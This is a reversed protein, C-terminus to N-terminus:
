NERPLGLRSVRDFRTWEERKVKPQDNSQDTEISQSALVLHSQPRLAHRHHHHHHHHQQQQHLEDVFSPPTYEEMPYASNFFSSPGHSWPDMHQYCAQGGHGRGHFDFTPAAAGQSHLLDNNNGLPTSVMVPSPMVTDPESGCPTLFRSQLTTPVPGPTLAPTLRSNYYQGSEQKIRLPAPAPAARSPQQTPEPSSARPTGAASESKVTISDGKKSKPEKRSKTVKSKPSATRNRKTPQQNLMYSRFRSYRMRAAHGNTIEQALIPDHAVKNWDIDKLNKQQLIAFLFRTMPSDNNASM